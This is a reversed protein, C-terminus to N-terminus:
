SESESRAIRREDLLKQIDRRGQGSLAAVGKEREREHRARAQELQTVLAARRAEAEQRERAAIEAEAKRVVHPPMQLDTREPRLLWRMWAAPVKPRPESGARASWGDLLDNLDSATWGHEAAPSLVQSWLGHRHRSAWAPTRPDALWRSALVDRETPSGSSARGGRNDKSPRPAGREGCTKRRYTRRLIEGQYDFLAGVPHPALPLYNGQDDRTKDVPRMAPHVSPHLAYESTWGRSRDGRSWSAMREAYSRQRGRTVETAVGLLRLAKRARQVTRRGIRTGTAQIRSVIAGNSLRSSRGTRYDAASAMVAAVALIKDLTISGDLRWRVQQYLRKYAAPVVREVWDQEGRWLPIGAYAGDGVDLTGSCTKRCAADAGGMWVIALPDHFGCQHGYTSSLM